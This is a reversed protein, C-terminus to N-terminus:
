EAAVTPTRHVWAPREVTTEGVAEFRGRRVVTYPRGDVVVTSRLRYSRVLGAPTVTLSVSANETTADVDGVRFPYAGTAYGPVSASHRYGGNAAPRVTWADATAPLLVSLLFEHRTPRFGLYQQPDFNGPSGGDFTMRRQRGCVTENRHVRDGTAFDRYRAASREGDCGPFPDVRSRSRYRATGGGAWRVRRTARHTVGTANRVVVREVVTFSRNSLRVRHADALAVPEVVQGGAVGPVTNSAPSPTDPVPTLADTEREPGFWQGCGATVLLAAVLVPGAIDRVTRVV